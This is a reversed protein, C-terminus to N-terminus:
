DMGLWGRGLRICGSFQWMGLAKKVDEVDRRSQELEEDIGNNSSSKQYQLRVDQYLTVLTKLRQLPEDHEQQESPSSSSTSSFELPSKLLHLASTHDQKLKPPLSWSTHEKKKYALPLPIFPYIFIYIYWSHHLPYPFLISSSSLFDLTLTSTLCLTIRPSPSQPSVCVSLSKLDSLLAPVQMTM